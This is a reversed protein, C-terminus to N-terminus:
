SAKKSFYVGVGISFVMYIAIIVYDLTALTPEM